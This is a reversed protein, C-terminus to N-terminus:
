VGTTVGVGDCRESLGEGLVVTAMTVLEGTAVSIGRVRGVRFLNSKAM